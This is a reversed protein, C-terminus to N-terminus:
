SQDMRLNQFVVCVSRVGIVKVCFSQHKWLIFFFGRYDKRAEESNLVVNKSKGFKLSFLIFCVSEIGLIRLIAWWHRRGEHDYLYTECKILENTLSTAIQIM